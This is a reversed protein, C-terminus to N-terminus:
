KPTETYTYIVKATGSVPDFDVTEKPTLAEVHTDLYAINVQGHHRAYQPGIDQPGAPTSNTPPTGGLTFPGNSWALRDPYGAFATRYRLEGQDGITNRYGRANLWSSEAYVLTQAPYRYALLSNNMVQGTDPTVAITMNSNIGYSIRVLSADNPNSSYLSAVNLHSTTDGDPGGMPYLRSADDDSPCAFIKLPRKDAALLMQSAYFAGYIGGGGVAGSPRTPLLNNSDNAYILALQSLSRLNASCTVAKGRERANGLSPLLIAILLGIIAVVVLLEILTFARRGKRDSLVM